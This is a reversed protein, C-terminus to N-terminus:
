IMNGSSSHCLENKIYEDVSHQPILWNRGAKFAQLRHSHILKYTTNRGIGFYQCVEDVTFIKENSMSTDEKLIVYINLYIM